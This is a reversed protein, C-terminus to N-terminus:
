VNPSHNLNDNSVSLQVLHLVNNGRININSRLLLSTTQFACEGTSLSFLWLVLHSLVPNMAEWWSGALMQEMQVIVSCDANLVLWSLNELIQNWVQGKTKPFSNLLICAYFSGPSPPISPTIVTRYMCHRGSLPSETLLVPRVMFCKSSKARKLSVALAGYTLRM